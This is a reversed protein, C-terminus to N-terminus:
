EEPKKDFINKAWNRHNNKMPEGKLTFTDCIALFHGEGRFPDPYMARPKLTVESNETQAQYTSSGDYAWNPLQTAAKPPANLVRAKSRLENKGGIWIYEVISKRM